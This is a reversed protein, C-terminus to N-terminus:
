LYQSITQNDMFNKFQLTLDKTINNLFCQGFNCIPRDMPCETPNIKGEISEYVELLTTKEAKRSLFFGGNPGRSSGVFGDKALRQMVKAVHHRSSGTIKAIEDVNISGGRSRGVLIMAHLAISAAESLTVIKSM